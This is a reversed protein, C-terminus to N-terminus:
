SFFMITINPAAANAGARARGRCQIEAGLFITCSHDVSRRGALSQTIIEFGRGGSELPVLIPSSHNKQETSLRIWIKREGM